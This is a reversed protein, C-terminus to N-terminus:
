ANQVVVASPHKWNTLDMALNSELLEIDVIIQSIFWDRDANSIRRRESASQPRGFFWKKLGANKAAEVVSYLKLGRLGNGVIWGTRAILFNRPVAAVNVESPMTDEEAPGEIEIARCAQRAFEIPSQKLQDMMLVHVHAPGMAKSWRSLCEFYRSSALIEPHKAVAERFCNSTTFGYRRMHQFLSFAREAPDRLTVVIPVKGLHQAVRNPAEPHHFYTPGIEIIAQRQEAHRFHDFYWRPQKRAFRQDFYFTEKVGKPLCVDPRTTFYEYLWSTGAKMPGVFLATPLRIDESGM